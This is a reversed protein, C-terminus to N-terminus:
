KKLSALECGEGDTMTAQAGKQIGSQDSVNRLSRERPAPRPRFNTRRAM